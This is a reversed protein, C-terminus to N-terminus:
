YKLKVKFTFYTAIFNQFILRRLLFGWNAHTGGTHGNNSKGNIFKISVARKTEFPSLFFDYESDVRM